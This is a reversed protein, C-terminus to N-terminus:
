PMRPRPQCRRINEITKTAAAKAQPAQTADCAVESAKRFIANLERKPLCLLEEITPIDNKM